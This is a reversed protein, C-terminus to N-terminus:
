SASGKRKLVPVGWHPHYKWIKIFRNKGDEKGLNGYIVAMNKVLDANVIKYRKLLRLKYM